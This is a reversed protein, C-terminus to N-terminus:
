PSKKQGPWDAPREKFLKHRRVDARPNTAPPDMQWLPRGQEEWLGQLPLQFREIADIHQGRLRLVERKFPQYFPAVAVSGGYHGGNALVVNCYLLRMGAEALGDFTNLDKNFAPGFLHLIHGQYGSLTEVAYLDYCIVVGFPGTEAHNFRVLDPAARFTVNAETTLWEWEPPSPHRKGVWFIRGTSVPHREPAPLVVMAENRVWGRESRYEVGAVVILREEQALRQLTRVHRRPICLEPFSAVRLPRDSGALRGGDRRRRGSKIARIAEWVRPWAEREAFDDTMRVLGGDFTWAAPSLDLDPQVLIVDLYEDYIPGANRGSQKEPPPTGADILYVTRDQLRTSRDKLNKAISALKNGVKELSVFKQLRYTERRVKGLAGKLLETQPATCLSALVAILDASLAPGREATEWVDKPQLPAWPRRRVLSSLAETGSAIAFGVLGVLVMQEAVNTRGDLSPSLFIPDPVLELLSLSIPRASKREAVRAQLNKWENVSLFLNDPAIYAPTVQALKTPLTAVSMLLALRLPETLEGMPDSSSAKGKSPQRLSAELLARVSVRGDPDHATRLVHVQWRVAGALPGAFWPASECQALLKDADAPGALSWLTDSIWGVTRATVIHGSGTLKPSELTECETVLRHFLGAWSFRDVPAQLLWDRALQYEGPVWPSSSACSEEVWKRMRANVVEARPGSAQPGTWSLLGMAAFLVDPAPTPSQRRFLENLATQNTNAEILREWRAWWERATRELHAVHRPAPDTPAVKALLRAQEIVVRLQRELRHHSNPLPWLEESSSPSAQAAKRLLVSAEHALAYWFRTRLFAQVAGTRALAGFGEASALKWRYADSAAARGNLLEALAEMQLSIEEMANKVPAATSHEPLMELASAAVQIWRGLLRHKDPAALLASLVQRAVVQGRRAVTEIFDDGAAKLKREARRSRAQHGTNGAGDKPVTQIDEKLQMAERHLRSCNLVAAPTWLPTRGLQAAAFAHRTDPRVEGKEEAEALDVLDIIRSDVEEDDLLEPEEDARRSMRQLTTSVFTKRKLHTVSGEGEWDRALRDRSQDPSPQSEGTSRPLHDISGGNALWKLFAPGAAHKGEIPHELEKRVDELATPHLKKWNVRLSHSELIDLHKSLWRCLITRDSAFILHDDVYRLVAVHGRFSPGHLAGDVARDVPLMYVNSLFGSAVLGVPLGGRTVREEALQELSESSFGHADEKFQLWGTLLRRWRPAGDFGPLGTLEEILRELLAACNVSPFFKRLDLQAYWARGTSNDGWSEAFYPFRHQRLDIGVTQGPAPPLARDRLKDEDRNIDEEVPDDTMVNGLLRYLTLNAYRRFPKYSQAFGLYFNRGGTRHEDWYWRGQSDRLRPRHLRYGFSWNPMRRDLMPGLVQSIALWGVQHALPVSYYARVEGGAKPIPVLRCPVATPPEQMLERVRDLHADLDAEWAAIEDVDYLGEFTELAWRARQYATALNHHSTLRSWSNERQAARRETM